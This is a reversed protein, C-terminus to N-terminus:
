ITQYCNLVWNTSLSLITFSAETYIIINFHILTSYKPM